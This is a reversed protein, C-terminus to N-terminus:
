KGKVQISQFNQISTVPDLTSGTMGFAKFIYNWYKKSGKKQWKYPGMDRKYSESPSDIMDSYLATFIKSYSELTPGTAVSKINLLATYDDLGLGPFPLFQENENRVQMALQLANNMIFGDMEFGEDDSTLGFFPAAGSRKRLKAYKDEDEPDWGLLPFILLSLAYLALVEFSFKRWAIQEEKSMNALYKVDVSATRALTKLITVYYGEHNDGLGYNMRARVRKLNGSFGFRNLFMPTFYRRLYSVFRFALYRQMEPQDFEAYAGQLNNQVQHMKNKFAKFFVNDIQYESTEELARQHYNKTKELSLKLTLLREELSSIRQKILKTKLKEGKNIIDLQDQTDAIDNTIKEIEETQKDLLTKINNQISELKESTLVSTMDVLPINFKKALSEITDESTINIVTKRNAYRIDIGEKLQIQGDKIEWADIYNILKGDISMKEKNMLAAFIQITAQM